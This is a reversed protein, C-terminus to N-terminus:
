PMVKISIAHASFLMPCWFWVAKVFGFHVCSQEVVGGMCYSVENGTHTSCCWRRVIVGVECRQQREEPGVTRVTVSTVNHIIVVAIQAPRNM